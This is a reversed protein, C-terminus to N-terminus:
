QEGRTLKPDSFKIPTLFESAAILAAIETRRLGVYQPLVRGRIIRQLPDM